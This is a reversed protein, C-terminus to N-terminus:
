DDFEENSNRGSSGVWAQQREGSDRGFGGELMELEEGEVQQRSRNESNYPMPTRSYHRFNWDQNIISDSTTNNSHHGEYFNRNQNQYRSDLRSSSYYSGGGPMCRGFGLARLAERGVCTGCCFIWMLGCFFFLVMVLILIFLLLDEDQEVKQIIPIPDNTSKM